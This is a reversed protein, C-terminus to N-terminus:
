VETVLMVEGTVSVSATLVFKLKDLPVQVSVLEAVEPLGALKPLKAPLMMVM